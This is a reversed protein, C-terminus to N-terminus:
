SDEEAEGQGDEDREDFFAEVAGNDYDSIFGNAKCFDLIEEFLWRGDRAEDGSLIEGSGLAEICDSLDRRTNYFRCYSMNAM